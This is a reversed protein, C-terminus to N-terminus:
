SAPHRAPRSVTAMNPPFGAPWSRREAILEGNLMAVVGGTSGMTPFHNVTPVEIGDVLTLNKSPSGGRAVLDNRLDGLAALGPLAQVPRNLDGMSGASRRIEESGFDLSSTTVNPPRAAADATVVVEERVTLTRALELVISVSRNAPVKIEVSSLPAYGPAEARISYVGASVGGIRFRGGDEVIATLSTGEVLVAAGVLPRHTDRDVVAREIVGIAAPPQPAASVPIAIHLLFVPLLLPTISASAPRGLVQDLTM